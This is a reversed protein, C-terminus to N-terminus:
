SSAEKNVEREGVGGRSERWDFRAAAAALLARVLDPAACVPNPSARTLDPQGHALDPSAGTSLFREQAFAATCCVAAGHNATKWLLRRAEWTPAAFTAVSSRPKGHMSRRMASASRHREAPSCTRPFYPGLHATLAGAAGVRSCCWCPSSSATFTAAAAAIEVM